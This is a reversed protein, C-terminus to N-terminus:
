RAGEFMEATTPHGEVRLNDFAPLWPEVGLSARLAKELRVPAVITRAPLREIEAPTAPRMRHGTYDVVHIDAPTGMAIQYAPLPVSAAVPARGVVTWDGVHVKADFTPALFLIRSGLAEHARNSAAAIPLIAEFVAVYYVNKEYTAVVQGVGARGDDIPIILVDGIQLKTL